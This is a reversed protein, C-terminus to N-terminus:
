RGAPGERTVPAEKAPSSSPATQLSLFASEVEAQIAARLRPTKADVLSHLRIMRRGHLRVAVLSCAKRASGQRLRGCYLASGRYAGLSLNTEVANPEYQILYKANEAEDILAGEVGRNSRRTLRGKVWGGGGIRFVALDLGALEPRTEPKVAFWNSGPFTLSFTGSQSVFTSEPPPEEASEGGAQPPATIEANLSPAPILTLWGLLCVWGLLEPRGLGPSSSRRPFRPLSNTRLSPSYIPQM